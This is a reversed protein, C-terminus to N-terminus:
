IKNYRLFLKGKKVVLKNNAFVMLNVILDLSLRKIDSCYYIILVLVFILEHPSIPLCALSLVKDSLPGPELGPVLLDQIIYVNKKPYM